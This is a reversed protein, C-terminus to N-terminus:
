KVGNPGLKDWEANDLFYNPDLGYKPAIEKVKDIIEQKTAGKEALKEMGEYIDMVNPNDSLDVNYYNKSNYDPNVAAYYENLNAAAKDFKKQQEPTIVVNSDTAMDNYQEMLALDRKYKGSSVYRWYPNNYGGNRLKRQEAIALEKQRNTLSPNDIIM